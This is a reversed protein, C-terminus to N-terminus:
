RRPSGRHLIGGDSKARRPLAYLKPGMEERRRGAFHMGALLNNVVLLVITDEPSRAAEKESLEDRWDELVDFPVESLARILALAIRRYTATRGNRDKSPKSPNAM